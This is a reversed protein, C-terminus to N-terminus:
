AGRAVHRIDAKQRYQRVDIPYEVPFSQEADFYGGSVLSEEPFHNESIGEDADHAQVGAAADKLPVVGEEDQVAHEDAIEDDHREQDGFCHQDPHPANAFLVSVYPHAVAAVILYEESEGAAVADRQINEEFGECVSEGGRLFVSLFANVRFHRIKERRIRIDILDEVQEQQM